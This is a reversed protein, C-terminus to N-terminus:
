APLYGPTTVQVAHVARAANEMAEFQIHLTLGGGERDIYKPAFSNGSPSGTVKQPKTTSARPSLISCIRIPAAM